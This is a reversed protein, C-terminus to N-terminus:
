LKIKAEKFTPAAKPWYQALPVLVLKFIQEPQFVYFQCSFPGIEFEIAKL